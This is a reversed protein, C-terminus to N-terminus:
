GRRERRAKVGGVRTAHSAALHDPPPPQQGRQVFSALWKLREMAHEYFMIYAECLVTPEPTEGGASRHKPCGGHCFPKWKCQVCKDPLRQKRAAFASLRQGDARDFWDADSLGQADTSETPVDDADVIDRGAHTELKVYGGGHVTLGVSESGDLDIANMWDPEGVRAVQWRREIFHDCAFVGGDHEVTLQTHCSGDLICLPMVGTVLKNLVSDFFRVSVKDRYREFWLDFIRCLFQGYKAPPPAYPALVNRSLDAPDPEWEIAPIFQLWPTGLSRLYQWLDDPHDVNRDNIVCLLNFPVDNQQLCKLGRFVAKSSPEGTNTVRYHDHFQKPGDISLGVLFDHDKLFACWEDNLLTGNTQLAHSVQQGPRQHARQFRMADRFFDLGALTPEGGQWTITVRDGFRPLFGAFVAELTARPMRHESGDYVSKTPLYYCYTCDLNCLAGVPKIM